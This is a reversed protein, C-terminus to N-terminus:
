IILLLLLLYTKKQVFELPLLDFLLGNLIQFLQLLPSIGLTHFAGYGLLIGLAFISVNEPLATNVSLQTNVGVLLREPIWNMIAATYYRSGVSHKGM